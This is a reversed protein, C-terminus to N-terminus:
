QDASLKVVDPVPWRRTAPKKEAIPGASFRRRGGVRFRGPMGGPRKEHAM